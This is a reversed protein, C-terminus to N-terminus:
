PVETTLTARRFGFTQLGRELLQGLKFGTAEDAPYTKKIQDLVGPKIDSGPEGHCSLCVPLNLVIPAYYTFSGFKKNCKKCIYEYLPM